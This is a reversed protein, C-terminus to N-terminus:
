KLDQISRRYPISDSKNDCSYYLTNYTNTYVQEHDPPYWGEPKLQKGDERKPGNTKEMNARQVEEFFPELDIGMAVAAGYTVYLLDCLADIAELLDQDKCAQKFEAAEERILDYRIGAQDDWDVCPYQPRRLGCAQHFTDVQHQPKHM